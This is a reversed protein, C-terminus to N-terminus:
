PVALRQSRPDFFFVGDWQAHALTLPQQTLKTETEALRPRQNRLRVGRPLLPMFFVGSILAPRSRRDKPAPRLVSEAVRNASGFPDRRFDFIRNDVMVRGPAAHSVEAGHPEAVAVKEAAAFRAPEIAFGKPLEEFEQVLGTCRFAPSDDHDAVVGLVMVGSRMQGPSFLVGGCEREIVERRVAGLQIRDLAYPLESASEAEVVAVETEEFGDDVGDFALERFPSFGISSV